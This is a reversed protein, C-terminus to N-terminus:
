SPFDRGAVRLRVHLRLSLPLAPLPFGGLFPSSSASMFQHGSGIGDMRFGHCGCWSEVLGGGPPVAGPAVPSLCPGVNGVQLCLQCLFSVKCCGLLHHKFGALSIYPSQSLGERRVLPDTDYDSRDCSPLGQM